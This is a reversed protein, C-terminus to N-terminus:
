GGGIASGSTAPIVRLACKHASFQCGLRPPFQVAEAGSYDHLLLLILLSSAFPCYCYASSPRLGAAASRHGYRGAAHGRRCWSRNLLDDLQLLVRGDPPPQPCEQAEGGRRGVGASNSM